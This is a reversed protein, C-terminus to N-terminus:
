SDHCFVMDHRSSWSCLGDYFCGEEQKESGADKIDWRWAEVGGSM